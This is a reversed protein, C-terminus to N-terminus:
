ANWGREFAARVDEIAEQLTSSKGVPRAFARDAAHGATYLFTYYTPDDRLKEVYGEPLWGAIFSVNYRTPKLRTNSRTTVVYADAKKNYRIPKRNM